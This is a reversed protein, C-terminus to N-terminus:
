GAALSLSRSLRSGPLIPAMETAFLSCAAPVARDTGRRPPAPTQEIAVGNTDDAAVVTVEGSRDSATSCRLPASRWMCSAANKPATCGMLQGGRQEQSGSHPLRDLEHSAGPSGPSIETVYTTTRAHSPILVEHRLTSGFVWRNRSQVLHLDLGVHISWTRRPLCIGDGAATRCDASPM